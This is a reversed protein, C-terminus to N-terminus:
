ESIRNHIRATSRPKNEPQFSRLAELNLDLVVEYIRGHEESAPIDM